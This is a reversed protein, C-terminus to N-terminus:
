LHRYLRQTKEQTKRRGRENMKLKLLINEMCKSRKQIMGKRTTYSLLHHALNSAAM